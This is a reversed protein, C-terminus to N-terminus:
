TPYVYSNRFERPSVGFNKRFCDSFYSQSSFGCQSAIVSLPLSTTALLSKAASLRLTTLYANPTTHVTALFIRYFHSSSLSCHQAIAQVTLPEAYNERMFDIAKSVVSATQPERTQRRQLALDKQLRCFFSVLRASADLDSYPEFSLLTQCLFSLEPGYKEYGMDPHYGCTSDVLARLQEDLSGFHVFISSFHLTSQRKDGPRAILMDGKHIPYSKGNLHSIGGDLIFLELEYEIVTRLHSVSNEPYKEPDSFKDHSDFIGASSLLPLSVSM